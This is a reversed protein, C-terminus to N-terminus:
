PCTLLGSFSNDAFKGAQNANAAAAFEDPKIVGVVLQNDTMRECQAVIRWDTGDVSRVETVGDIIQPGLDTPQVTIGKTEAYAIPFPIVSPADALIPAATTPPASSTSSASTGTTASCGAVLIAAALAVLRGM